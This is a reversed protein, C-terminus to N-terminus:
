KDYYNYEKFMNFTLAQYFIGWFLFIKIYQGATEPPFENERTNIAGTKACYVSRVEKDTDASHLLSVM